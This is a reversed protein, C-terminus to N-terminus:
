FIIRAYMGIEFGMSSLVNGSISPPLVKEEVGIVTKLYGGFEINETMRYSSEHELTLRVPINSFSAAKQRDTFTYINELTLRETNQLGTKPLLDSEIKAFFPDRKFYYEWFYECVIKSDITDKPPKEPVLVEKEPSGPVLYFQEEDIKQRERSYSLSYQLKWGKWEEKLLNLNTQTTYTQSLIKTAYNKENSYDLSLTLSKDFFKSSQDLYLTKDYSASFGRKQTYSEGERKTEGSFGFGLSSPVFWEDYQFYTDFMYENKLTASTNGEINGSDKYEDVADYDKIRGLGKIPNIYYFPPMFIYKGTNLLIDWEKLNAEVNKYDASIERQLSPVIEIRENAPFYFPFSLALAHRVLTNRSKDPYQFGSENFSTDYSFFSGVSKQLPISLDLAFTDTKTSLAADEIDDEPPSFVSGLRNWYSDLWREMDLISSGGYTKDRKFNVSLSNIDWSFSFLLDKTQNLTATEQIDPTFSTEPSTTLTSDLAWSRFFSYSQYLGFPFDIYESLGLSDSYLSARKYRYSTQTLEIFSDETVVRDYTHQLVPIYDKQFDLGIRHSFNEAFGGEELNNPLEEENRIPAYVEKSAAFGADAYRFLHTGMDTYFRDSKYDFDEYFSGELHEYGINLFPNEIMPVSGIYLLEGQYDIGAETFLAKDFFNISESVYWEDLWFESGEAVTLSDVVMSFRIESVRKLIRLTGLKEMTDVTTDNLKVTYPPT